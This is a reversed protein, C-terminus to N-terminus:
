APKKITENIAELYAKQSQLQPKGSNKDPGTFLTRKLM